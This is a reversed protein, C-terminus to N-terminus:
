RGGLYDGHPYHIGEESGELLLGLALLLLTTAKGDSGGRERRGGGVLIGDDGAAAVAGAAPAQVAGGSGDERGGGGGGGSVGGGEQAVEEGEEVAVAVALDGAELDLIHQTAQSRGVVGGGGLLDGGHDGLDVEVAVPADAEVLESGDLGREDGASGAVLLLEHPLGERHEVGVSVALDRRLLEVPHEIQQEAVALAGDFLAPPHDAADVGVAVPEHPEVLEHRHHHVAPLRALSRRHHSISPQIM